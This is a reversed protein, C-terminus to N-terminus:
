AGAAFTEARRRSAIFDAIKAVTRFNEFEIDGLNMPIGFKTEIQLLLEVFSMSDVVGAEFLDTDTSPIDLGLRASFLDTIDDCLITPLM